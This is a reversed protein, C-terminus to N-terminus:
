WGCAMNVTRGLGKSMRDVKAKNGEEVWANWLREDVDKKFLRFEVKSPSVPNDHGLQEGYLRQNEVYYCVQDDPSNFTRFISKLNTGCRKYARFSGNWREVTGVAYIVGDVEKDLEREPDTFVM